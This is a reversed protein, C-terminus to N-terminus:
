SSTVQLAAKNRNNGDLTNSEFQDMRTITSGSLSRSRKEKNIVFYVAIWWLSELDHTANYRFIQKQEQEAIQQILEEGSASTYAVDEKNLIRAAIDEITSGPSASDADEQDNPLIYDQWRYLYTRCDVEVAMFNATGTRSEDEM